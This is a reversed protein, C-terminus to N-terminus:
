YKVSLTHSFDVPYMCNLLFGNSEEKANEAEERLQTTSTKSRAM